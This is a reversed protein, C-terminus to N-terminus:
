RTQLKGGSVQLQRHLDSAVAEGRTAVTQALLFHPRAASLVGRRREKNFGSSLPLPLIHTFSWAALVQMKFFVWSSKGRCRARAIWMM